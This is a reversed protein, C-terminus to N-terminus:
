SGCYGHLDEPSYVSMPLLINVGANITMTLIDDTAFNKSIADMELADSIIVGEFGLSGRLLDTLIVKSM